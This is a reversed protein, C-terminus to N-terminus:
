VSYITPLTLHTYSVAYYLQQYEKNINERDQIIEKIFSITYNPFVHLSLIRESPTKITIKIPEGCSIVDICMDNELQDFNYDLLDRKGLCVLQQNAAQVGCKEEIKQKMDNLTESKM